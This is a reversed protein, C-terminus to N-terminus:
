SPLRTLSRTRGPGSRYVLFHGDFALVHTLGLREIVAFTTADVLSFAQDPWDQIIHWARDLDEPWLPVVEIRAKRLREWFTMAAPRGVRANVLAWTEALIADTTIFEDSKLREAYFRSAPEHHRDSRNGIAYWASTDVLIRMACRTGWTVTM